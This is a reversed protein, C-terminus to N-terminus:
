DDEPYSDDTDFWHDALDNEDFKPKQVLGGGRAKRIKQNESQSWLVYLPMGVIQHYAVPGLRRSDDDHGRNDNLVFFEDAELEWEHGNYKQAEDTERLAAIPYAITDLVEYRIRVDRPDYGTAEIFQGVATEEIPQYDVDTGSDILQGNEFSIYDGPLGVIRGVRLTNEEPSRYVVVDGYDPPISAYISRDVWVVDGPMATPFMSGSAIHVPSAFATLFLLVIGLFPIFWTTLCFLGNVMSSPPINRRLPARQADRANLHLLVAWVAIFWLTPWLPSFKWGIWSLAYLMWAGVFGAHLLFARLWYGKTAWVVGPCFISAIYLVSVARPYEAHPRTEENTM